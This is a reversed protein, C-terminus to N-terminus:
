YNWNRDQIPRSDEISGENTHLAEAKQKRDADPDPFECAALLGRLQNVTFSDVLSFGNPSPQMVRLMKEVGRKLRILSIYEPEFVTVYDHPSVRETREIADMVEPFHAKSEAPLREWLSVMTMFFAEHALSM